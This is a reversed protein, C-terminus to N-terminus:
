IPFDREEFAILSLIVWYGLWHFFILYEFNESKYLCAMQLEEKQDGYYLLWLVFLDLGQCYLLYDFIGGYIVVSGSISRM